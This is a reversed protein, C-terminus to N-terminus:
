SAPKRLQNTNHEHAPLNHKRSRSWCIATVMAVELDIRIVVSNMM